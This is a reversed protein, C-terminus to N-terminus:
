VYRFLFGILLPSATRSFLSFYDIFILPPLLPMFALTAYIDAAAAIDFYHRPAAHCGDTDRCYDVYGYVAAIVIDYSFIM